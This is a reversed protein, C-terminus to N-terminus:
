LPLYPLDPRGTFVSSFHGAQRGVFSRPTAGGAVEHGAAAVRRVLAPFREAVEGLFFFTANVGHAELIDLVGLTNAEVRSARPTRPDVLFDHYWDEVDISLAHVM